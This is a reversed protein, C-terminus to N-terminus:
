KKPLSGSFVALAKEMTVGAQAQAAGPLSTWQGRLKKIAEEVKGAKVLDLAGSSTIIDVAIRDQSVPSFDALGLKKKYGDYTGELIMYAGAATSTHGWKTVKKRPHDSTDSFTEGGYMRYYDDSQNGHPYFEAWRIVHLFAQVNDDAAAM